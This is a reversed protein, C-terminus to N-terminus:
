VSSSLVGCPSFRTWTERLRFFALVLPLSVRHAVDAPLRVFVGCINFFQLRLITNYIIFRPTIGRKGSNEVPDVPSFTELLDTRYLGAM